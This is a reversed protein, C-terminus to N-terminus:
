HRGRNRRLIRSLAVSVYETGEINVVALVELEEGQDNTFIEGTKINEM